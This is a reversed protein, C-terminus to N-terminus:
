SPLNVLFEKLILDYILRSTTKQTIKSGCLVTEMLTEYM